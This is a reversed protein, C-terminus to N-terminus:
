KIYKDVIEKASEFGKCIYSKTNKGCKNLIENWVKQEPSTNSGQQRKMEIYVITHPKTNFVIIYDPIGVALKLRKNRYKQKWSKTYMENNIHGFKLVKGRGQLVELYGVLWECEQDELPTCNKTM